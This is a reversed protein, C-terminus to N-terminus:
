HQIPFYDSNTRLDVCFVYICQTPLVYFQQINFQHYMYHGSHPVYLSWQAKAAYIDLCPISLITDHGYINNYRDINLEIDIGTVFIRSFNSWGLSRLFTDTHRDEAAVRRGCTVHLVRIPQCLPPSSSIACSLVMNIARLQWSLAAQPSLPWTSRFHGALLARWVSMLDAVGCPLTVSRTSIVLASLV